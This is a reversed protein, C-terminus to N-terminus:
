FDFILQKQFTLLNKNTILIQEASCPSQKGSFFTLVCSDQYLQALDPTYSVSSSISKIPSSKIFLFLINILKEQLTCFSVYFFFGLPELM